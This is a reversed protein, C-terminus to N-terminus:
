TLLKRAEMYYRKENAHGMSFTKRPLAGDKAVAPFLKFKDMSPLLFGANQPNEALEEVTAHGHIYDIRIGEKVLVDLANQLAGVELGSSPDSIVLTWRAKGAIVPIRYVEKEETDKEETDKEETDKEKTDKKETSVTSSRESEELWADGNQSRESEELWADGNQKRLVDVTRRVIEEGSVKGDGFMVRHIPAFIIGDDHVNEIECLAFRAPHDKQEEPTLDKKIEEWAAKATALSHNGDGMAMLFEKGAGFKETAKDFLDSFAAQVGSLESAPVYAGTIHGGDLMLDTDYVIRSGFAGDKDFAKAALPEIVTRDPDDILIIIHPLEIPAGRRIKLRPPIREVITKETARIRSVSGLHFDYAELDVAIVLGLRTRVNSYGRCSRRVVMCGEPLQRLTGDKMYRQMCARIEKTKQEEEPKGLYYEPLMLRLTSPADGVFQEAKQWYDPESTYQDCAVVAWKEMDTGEQPLIIKPIHLGM